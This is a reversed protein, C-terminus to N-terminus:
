LIKDMGVDRLIRASTKEKAIDLLRADTKGFLADNYKSINVFDERRYAELLSLKTEVEEIKEFYLSAM